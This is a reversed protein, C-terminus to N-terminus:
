KGYAAETAILRIQSRHIGLDALERETLVNLERLTQRYLANRQYASKAQALLAVLRDGLGLAPSRTANLIAM